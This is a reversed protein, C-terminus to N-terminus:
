GMISGSFASSPTIELQQAEGDFLVHFLELCGAHGLLAIEEAPDEFPVFGIMASWKITQGDRSLELEVEGPAVPLRGGGFSGIWGSQKDDIKIGLAEGISRPLLTEDAGTDVLAWFYVDDKPGLIRLPVMPRYLVNRPIIRSANISYRKYPFIM